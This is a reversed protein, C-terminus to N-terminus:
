TKDRCAPSGPQAIVWALGVAGAPWTSSAVKRPGEFAALARGPLYEGLSDLDVLGLVATLLAEVM